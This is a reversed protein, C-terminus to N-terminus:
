PLREVTAIMDRALAPLTNRQHEAWTKAVLTTPYLLVNGRERHLAIETGHQDTAVIWDLKAQDAVYQGFALGIQNIIANPDPRHTEDLRLWANLMEDYHRGLDDIDGFRVDQESLEAISSRVWDVEAATLPELTPDDAEPPTSQPPQAPPEDSSKKRWPM